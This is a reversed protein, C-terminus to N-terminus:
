SSRPTTSIRKTPRRPRAPMSTRTSFLSTVVRSIPRRPITPAMACSMPRRRTSRTQEFILADGADKDYVRTRLVVNGGRVSMTLSLTINDNKVPVDPNENYFYKNIGKTILVDTTSKAFGYGALTGPGGGGATPIFALM